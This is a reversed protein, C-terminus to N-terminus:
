RNSLHSNLCRSWVRDFESSYLALRWLQAALTSVPRQGFMDYHTLIM